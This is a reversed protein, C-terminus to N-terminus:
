CCQMKVLKRNRRRFRRENRQVVRGGATICQEDALGPAAVTMRWRQVGLRAPVSVRRRFDADIIELGAPRRDLAITRRRKRPKVKVLLTPEIVIAAELRQRIYHAVVVAAHIQLETCILM